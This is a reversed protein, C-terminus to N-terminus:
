NRLPKGTELTYSIREQTKPEGCLSLFAEKERDLIEQESILMGEPCDGGSLVWAAKKAVHVDYDSLYNGQRMNYLVVEALGRFAEGMVPILSTRPKKYLPALGLVAQKAEWLQRDRNMSIREAKRIYGLEMAEQASGAVRAKAINELAKLYFHQLNLGAELIGEPIGETLRLTLEKCGGGAPILGVGAEVLGMYTEGCPLCVAGHMAIECGGGITLGAPAIVVPRSLFKLRMNVRQFASVMLGLTPWDGARCLPLLKRINAGASFNVDNNGVVMGLFDREVLDCGDSIMQMVDDDISNMKTHFELCAVGDGMDVLSAGVNRRITKERERLSSLIIIRPNEEEKVYGGEEFDYVYLGDEKKIYFSECGAALMELVKAPAELGLDEMVSVARRVGVADWIEFPGLRHNYGWKMARDISVIGACIESVRGAAYLFNRCLYERAFRCAGDEGDFITRIMGIVDGKAKKAQRLSDFDPSVPPAHEMRRYDLALKVDLGSEDKAKKYFGQRTKNGLWQRELMAAMFAPPKFIDRKEDGTLAEHLNMMVHHAVDLGVLDLTGFIASRPRGLGAVIADVEEIKLHLELMLRIATAMDFNGIRNAVFGPVDRCVVVGKGLSEECFKVMCAIIERRTEPLPIIELLKMYRPPNFFHTGLFNKRFSPSFRKAIDKIPLGSTNTSVLCDPKVFKEVRAFLEQKIKLDEVVAEVVWDVESLRSLHDELNGAKILSANKKTYFPAPRAQLLHALSAAAISNRWAPDKETRGKRRDAESIERPVIDLLLCEVGANTLHAAIAAGMVGAGLVAAKEIAM